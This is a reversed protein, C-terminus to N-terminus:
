VSPKLTRSARSRAPKTTQREIHIVSEFVKMLSKRFHTSATQDGNFKRQLYFRLIGDGIIYLETPSVDITKVGMQRLRTIFQGSMDVLAAEISSMTAQFKADFMAQSRIDYFLRHSMAQSDSEISAAASTIFANLVGRPTDAKAVLKNVQEVFDEKYLQVSYSILEVKDEFYYHIVGTSLGSSEAIDRLSVRAYGHKALTSLAHYALNRKADARKQKADSLGSKSAVAESRRM